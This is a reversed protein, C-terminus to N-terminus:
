WQFLLFDLEFVIVHRTSPLKLNREVEINQLSFTLCTGKFSDPFILKLFGFHGFM